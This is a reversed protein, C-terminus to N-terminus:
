YNVTVEIATGNYDDLMKQQRAKEELMQAESLGLKIFISGIFFEYTIVGDKPRLQSPSYLKPPTKTGDKRVISISYSKADKREAFDATFYPNNAQYSTYNDDYSVEKKINVHGVLAVTFVSSSNKKVKALSEGTAIKTLNQGQKLYATVKITDTHEGEDLDTNANCYYSVEKLSSSFSNGKHGRDDSLYGYKGTTEWQYEIAPNDDGLSTKIYATLKKQNLPNITFEKPDINLQVEKAELNWEELTNSSAIANSIRSYDIVKMGIDIVGMVKLLHEAKAESFEAAGGAYSSGLETLADSVNKYLLKIWDDAASGLKGNELGFLVEKFATQFNGKGLADTAAPITAVLDGTKKVLAQLNELNKGIDLKSSMKKLVDKHGVIDLMVPIIYDFAFTQLTLNWLRDKEFSTKADPLPLGPGLVRVKFNAETEEDELPIEVPGNTTAAFEMGKGAAWDQLVGKFDRIAGTPSIQLEAMATVNGGISSNVTHSTGELDKYNMKYIFAYARRRITNTITFENLGAEALQLGSRIDNANVTIDAAKRPITGSKIIEAVKTKLADAYLGKQLTLPDSKFMKELESKWEPVGPVKGIGNIFKDMIEYPQFTTGMGFYLLVEATSGTSITTTSDTIFGALIVNNNKDFVYAINPYGKDFAAKVNGKNDVPTSLSLSFLECTSLDVPSNKPLIIQVDKTTVGVPIEPGTPTTQQDSNKKCSVFVIVFLFFVFYTTKKMVANKKVTM